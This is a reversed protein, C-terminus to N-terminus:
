KFIKFAQLFEDIYRRSFFLSEGDKFFIENNFTNIKTVQKVNVIYNRHVRCFQVPPLQAQLDKLSQQIVFKEAPCVVKSYKGDVEIYRIDDFAIRQLLNGKKIFLTDSVPAVAQAPPATSEQKFKSLALEIAYELELPNYPKLLYNYPSTFKALRFTTSDGASTLFIFPRRQERHENITEAFLIGDPKNALYIDILCIDPLEADYATVADKLNTTIRIDSCGQKRLFNELYNAEDPSDELILVKLHIM